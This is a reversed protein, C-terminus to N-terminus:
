EIGRKYFSNGAEDKWRNREAVIGVIRKFLKCTCKFNTRFGGIGCFDLMEPKIKYECYVCTHYKKTVEDICRIEKWEQIKREAERFFNPIALMEAETTFNIQLEM